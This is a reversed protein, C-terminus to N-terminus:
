GLFFGLALLATAHAVLATPLGRTWYLTGFVLAPIVVVAAVYGLAALPGPFGIADIAPLYLLVQAAAAGLIALLATGESRGRWRLILWALGTVLFLRLLVESVLAGSLARVLLETNGAEALATPVALPVTHFPVALLGLVVGAGLGLAIGRGLRGRELEGATGPVLQLRRLALALTIAPGAVWISLLGALLVAGVPTVRFQSGWLEPRDALFTVLLAGFTAAVLVTGVRYEPWRGYANRLARVGHRAALVVAGAGLVWATAAGVLALTKGTYFAVVTMAMWGAIAWGLALAPIAYLAALALRGVVARASVEPERGFFGLVAGHLFGLVAGVVFLGTATMFLGAGSIRGGLTMAAVVFGGVLVGGATAWSVAVRGSLGIEGSVPREIGTEMAQTTM